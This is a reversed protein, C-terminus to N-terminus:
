GSFDKSPVPMPFSSTRRTRLIPVPARAVRRWGSSGIEIASWDATGLDMYLCAAHSAVRLAAPKCLGSAHARAELGMRADRVAGETASAPRGKSAYRLALEGIMWDRFARSSIAHHEDHNGVPVTAYTEGDTSRWVQARDCVELLAD